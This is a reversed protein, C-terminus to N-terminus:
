SSLITISRLDNKNNEINNNIELIDIDSIEVSNNYIRDSSIIISINKARTIATYISQSKSKNSIPKVGMIDQEHVVVIDYTSGQSRHSSL